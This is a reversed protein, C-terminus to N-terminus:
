PGVPSPGNPKGKKPPPGLLMRASAESGHALTNVMYDKDAATLKNWDGGSRQEIDELKTSQQQTEASPAAEHDGCGAAILSGSFLALLALKRMIM